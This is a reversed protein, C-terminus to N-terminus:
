EASDQEGDLADLQALLEERSATALAAEDRLALQELLKARKQARERRAAAADREAIKVGIIHKVIELAEADGNSKTGVPTVFSIEESDAKVKRHLAKAVGDLSLNSSATLPLDWLDEVTLEGRNSPIRLKQRSAKIFLTSIDTM